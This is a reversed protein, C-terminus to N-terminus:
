KSKCKRHKVRGARSLLRTVSKRICIGIFLRRRKVNCVGAHSPEVTQLQYFYNVTLSFYKMVPLTPLQRHMTM